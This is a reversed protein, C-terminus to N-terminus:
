RKRKRKDFKSQGNIPILIENRNRKFSPILDNYEEETLPETRDVITSKVSCILKSYHDILGNSDLISNCKKCQYKDFTRQKCTLVHNKFESDLIAHKCKQCITVKSNEIIDENHVKMLHKSYIIPLQRTTCILCNNEHDKHKLRM